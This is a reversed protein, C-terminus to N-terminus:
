GDARKREGEALRKPEIGNFGFHVPEAHEKHAGDQPETESPVLPSIPLSTVHVEHQDAIQDTQRDSNMEQRDECEESHHQEDIEAVILEGEIREHLKSHHRHKNETEDIGADHLVKWRKEVPLESSIPAGDKHKNGDSRKQSSRVTYVVGRLNVITREINGKETEEENHKPVCGVRHDIDPRIGIRRHVLVIRAGHPSEDRVEVTFLVAGGREDVPSPVLFRFLGRRMLLVGAVEVVEPTILHVMHVKAIKSPVVDSRFPIPLFCSHFPVSEECERQQQPQESRVHM